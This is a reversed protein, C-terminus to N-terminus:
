RARASGKAGLDITPLVTPGPIGSPTPKTGNFAVVFEARFTVVHGQSTRMRWKTLHKGPVPSIRGRVAFIVDLPQGSQAAESLRANIGDLFRTSELSGNRRDAM